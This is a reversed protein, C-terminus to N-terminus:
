PRQEGSSAMKPLARKALGYKFVKRGGGLAWNDVQKLEVWPRSSFGARDAQSLSM